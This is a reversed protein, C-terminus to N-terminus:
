ARKAQGWRSSFLVNDVFRTRQVFDSQPGFCLALRTVISIARGNKASKRSHNAGKPAAANKTAQLSFFVVNSIEFVKAHMTEVEATQDLLSHLFAGHFRVAENDLRKQRAKTHKNPRPPKSITPIDRHIQTNIDCEGKTGIYRKWITKANENWILRVRFGDRKVIGFGATFLYVVDIMNKELVVSKSARSGKVIASVQSEELARPINYCM